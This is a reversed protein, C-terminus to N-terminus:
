PSRVTVIVIFAIINILPKFNALESYDLIVACIVRDLLNRAPEYSLPPRRRFSAESARRDDFLSNCVFLVDLRTTIERILRRCARYDISM